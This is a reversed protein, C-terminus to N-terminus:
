YDDWDGDDEDGESDSNGQIAVRRALIEAVSMAHVDEKVPAASKLERNQASKLAIGGRINELLSSRADVPKEAAAPTARKLDAGQRIADLLGGSMGGGGSAPPPPPPPPAPGGAPPPPPPPPAPGGAPPPPPPPPAPGGAPPPPPAPADYASPPPPMSSGGPPPPPAPADYASPTPHRPSPPAAPAANAPPPPIEPMMGSGANPNAESKSKSKRDGKSKGKDKDKSSSSKSSKGKDSSAPAATPPAVMSSEGTFALSGGGGSGQVVEVSEEEEEIIKQGTQPDYRVKRLKRIVKAPANNDKQNARRAAREERRKKREAKLLEVQKQQEEIWKEFFFQPHTYKVLCPKGDEACSDLLHLAPPPACEDNYVATVAPPRSQVTLHQHQEPNQATFESRTANNMQLLIQAQNGGFYAEVRAATSNIKEARDSLSKIRQFTETAEGVLSTFMENAYKTLHAMQTIIGALNAQNTVQAVKAPPVDVLEIRNLRQAPPIERKVFVM